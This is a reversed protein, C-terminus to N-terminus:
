LALNGVKLFKQSLEDSQSLRCRADVGRWDDSDGRVDLPVVDGNYPQEVNRHQLRLRKSSETPSLM